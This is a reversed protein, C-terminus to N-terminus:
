SGAVGVKSQLESAMLEMKNQAAMLAVEKKQLQGELQRCQERSGDLAEQVQLHAVSSSM